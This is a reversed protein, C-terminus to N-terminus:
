KKYKYYVVIMIVASIGSLIYNFLLWFDYGFRLIAYGAAAAYGIISLVYLMLSVDEVSKSKVSKIIQPWYCSIFCANYAIGLMHELSTTMSKKGITLEHLVRM